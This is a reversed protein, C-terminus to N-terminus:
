SSLATARGYLWVSFLYRDRGTDPDPLWSLGIADDVASVFVPVPTDMSTGELSFLEARAQQAIDLIASKTIPVEDDKAGGWVDCQIMATDLYDRIAPTGGARHVVIIPWEPNNPISSYCRFGAQRLTYSAVAELDPLAIM